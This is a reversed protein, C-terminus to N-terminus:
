GEERKGLTRLKRIEGAKRYHDAAESTRSMKELVIALESLYDPYAPVLEVANRLYSEAEELEGTLNCCRGMYFYAPAHEPNLTLFDSLRKKAKKYLGKRLESVAALFMLDDERAGLKLAREQWGTVRLTGMRRVMAHVRKALAEPSAGVKEPGPRPREAEYEEEEPIDFGELPTIVEVTEAEAESAIERGSLKGELLKEFMELQKSGDDMKVLPRLQFESVEDTLLLSKRIEEPLKLLNLIQTIRARSYGLMDALRSRNPLLDMALLGKFLMAEEMCNSISEHALGVHVKSRVVFCKLSNRGEAEATWVTRHRALVRFGKEEQLLIPPPQPEASDMQTRWEEPPPLYVMDELRIEELPMHEIPNEHTM